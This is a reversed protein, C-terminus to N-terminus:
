VLGIGKPNKFWVVKGKRTQVLKWTNDEFAVVVIGSTPIHEAFMDSLYGIISTISPNHGVVMVCNYTDNLGHIVHMIDSLDAEYLGSDLDLNEPKLKLEQAVIEMTKKTRMAPSAVIQQPIFRTQALSQTMLIADKTGRVELERSFDSGDPSEKQAKAHRMFVIQKM